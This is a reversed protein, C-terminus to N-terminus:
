KYVGVLEGNKDLIGARQLLKIAREKTDIKKMYENMAKIIDESEKKTM